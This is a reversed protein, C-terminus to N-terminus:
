FMNRRSLLSTKGNNTWFPGLKGGTIAVGTTPSACRPNLQPSDLHLLRRSLRRRRFQCRRLDRRLRGVLVQRHGIGVVYARRLPQELRAVFQCDLSAAM